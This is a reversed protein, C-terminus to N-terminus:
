VKPGAPEGPLLLVCSHSLCPPCPSLIAPLLGLGVGSPTPHECPGKLPLHRGVSPRHQKVVAPGGARPGEARGVQLQVSAPGPGPGPWTLRKNRTSGLEQQM